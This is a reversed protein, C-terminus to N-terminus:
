LSSLLRYQYQLKSHPEGAGMRALQDSERISQQGLATISKELRGSCKLDTGINSTLAFWQQWKYIKGHM